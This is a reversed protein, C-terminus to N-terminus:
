PHLRCCYNQLWNCYLNQMKESLSYNARIEREFAATTDNLIQRVLPKDKCGKYMKKTYNLGAKAQIYIDHKM